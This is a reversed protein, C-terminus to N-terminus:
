LLRAVIQLEEGVALNSKNHDIGEKTLNSTVILEFHKHGKLVYISYVKNDFMFVFDKFMKYSLCVGSGCYLPYLDQEILGVIQPDIRKFVHWKVFLLDGETECKKYYHVKAVFEEDDVLELKDDEEEKKVLSNVFGTIMPNGKDEVGSLLDKVIGIINGTDKTNEM